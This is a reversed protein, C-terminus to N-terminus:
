GLLWGLIVEPPYFHLPEEVGAQQPARPNDEEWQLYDRLEAEDVIRENGWRKIFPGNPGKHRYGLTYDGTEKHLGLWYIRRISGLSFGWVVYPLKAFTKLQILSYTGPAGQRPVHVKHQDGLVRRCVEIIRRQDALNDRAHPPPITAIRHSRRISGDDTWSVSAAKALRLSRRPHRPSNRKTQM